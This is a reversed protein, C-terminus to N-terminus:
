GEREPPAVRDRFRLQCAVGEEVSFLVQGRLQREGISFIILMGLTDSERFDFGEPVGIGDDAIQLVIEHDDERRLQVRITGQADGPFAHKFANSLLENVILGCPIASDISVWVEEVDLDIAIRNPRVQYSGIALAALDVIYRGLDIRSLSQSQYLREHVLAMSRIRNRMEEFVVQLHDDDTYAAQLQLMSDIVQMNNKTRHYLERLLIEKEQLAQRLEEEVRKRNTIDQVIGTLLEPRGERDLSLAGAEGWVTRVTGDPRIVRYEVPIPQGKEIVSRNSHEVAARDDPHIARAIVQDLEGAFGEKEIGFIRYMEDSWELRNTKIYWVWSGVHAVEQARKLAAESKRLAEEAEKREAIESRLSEMTEKLQGAMRNFSGTVEDLEGIGNAAVIQEWEGRALAQASAKLQSIPRTVWRATLIGVATAIALSVVVLLATARGSAEIQGMFDSEPVVVVILWDIGYADRIPSVQLFQRRGEIEFELYQEATIQDYGGFREVLFEAARRIAPVGSEHAYRRREAQTGDPAIFPAEGMSSTVLLGSREMIFSSGTEGIELSQVFDSLHSVFIDISAVGLLNQGEDYVPRSAAIAMEQGTFLIYIDSWTADGEELAGTYWPRTRADFHPLTTLVGARNGDADTAYKRWLGAVPGETATTYRAGGAGERGAGVMGGEPFGFYISTVSDFVQVQEWFHREMGALDDAGLLGRRMADANLRTIQHPTSLFPELHEEIRATTERGLRHAVEHVAQRGNRFSLYGVLGSVVVIQVVFPV